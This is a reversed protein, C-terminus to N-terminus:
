WSRSRGVPAASRAPERGGTIADILRQHGLHLGDFVGITLGCPRRGLDAGAGTREALFEEWTAVIM